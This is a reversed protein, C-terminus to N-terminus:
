LSQYRCRSRSRFNKRITFIQFSREDLDLANSVKIPDLSVRIKEVKFSSIGTAQPNFLRMEFGKNIVLDGLELPDLGALLVIRTVFSNKVGVEVQRGHCFRRWLKRNESIAESIGDHRRLM